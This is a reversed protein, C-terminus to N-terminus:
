DFIINFVSTFLINNNYLLIYCYYTGIFHKESIDSTRGSEKEHPHKMVNSRASGNGDDLIDTILVGILSSKGSDVNGGVVIAVENVSEM